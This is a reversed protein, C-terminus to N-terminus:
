GTLMEILRNAKRRFSTDQLLAPVRELGAEVLHGHLYFTGPEEPDGLPLEAVDRLGRYSAFDGVRSALYLVINEHRAEGDMPHETPPTALPILGTEIAHALEEPLSWAEALAAGVVARNLGAAAQQRQVREVISVGEDYASDVGDVALILAVDGLNSFLSKTALVSPRSLGLEKGLVQAFASAVCSSKWVHALARQQAPTGAEAREALAAQSVVGKVVSIGLYNVAHQVSTIPESLAFAASNVTRLVTATLGADSAVAARLEEPTDLGQAMQTQVPHPEPMAACVETLRARGAADVDDARLVRLETLVEPTPQSDTDTLAAAASEQPAEYIERTRVAAAPKAAPPPARKSGPKRRWLFFMVVIALAALILVANM